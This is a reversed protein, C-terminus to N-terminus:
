VFVERKIFTMTMRSKRNKWALVGLPCVRALAGSHQASKAIRTLTHALMTRVAARSAHSHKHSDRQHGQTITGWINTLVALPLASDNLHHRKFAHWRGGALKPSPSDDLVSKHTSCWVGRRLGWSKSVCVWGTPDCVNSPHLEASIATFTLFFRPLCIPHM